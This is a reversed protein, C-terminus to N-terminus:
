VLAPHDIKGGEVIGVYPAGSQKDKWFYCFMKGRLTFFPMGYKMAEAIDPHFDLIWARLALLCGQM